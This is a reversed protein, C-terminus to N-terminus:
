FTVEGDHSILSVSSVAAIESVAKVLEAEKAVRVEIIMDLHGASVNRSKVKCTKGAAKVADLVAAEAELEAANVVLMMPAKSTPLLDLGIVVVTVLLSALLAIEYLGAGCIIGISISWFLFVLDMPDKIATRFRIISLAGVMGLSIVLNSQMALIIAATIV